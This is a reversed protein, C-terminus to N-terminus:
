VAQETVRAGAKRPQAGSAPQLHGELEAARALGSHQSVVRVRAADAMAMSTRQDMGLVRLVDSTTSVTSIAEGEPFFCELGPWRDSIIPTGCAAAEFLRVSPSWGAVKMDARTINLTFRQRGYFSAHEAPALHEIREVNAPWVIDRPYLPGAVVFRRRPMRRAVALLLRELAPQRDASYTGLYGIEWRKAGERSRYKEVDVSCYLPEARRAGYQRKLRDLTPGGTFSLYVDFLPVQRTAIYEQDGTALKGLTVPTDIDYFCLRGASHRAVADIVAVGEPVYSGIVIADAHRLVAAHQHELEAVDDYYRLECFGPVELDRNQAYWPRERELFVVRHGRAALGKLLSRYTTAHGNGWSSSLSLGLFVIELRSSTM